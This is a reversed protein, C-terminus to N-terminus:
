QVHQTVLPDSVTALFSDQLRSSVDNLVHQANSQGVHWPSWTRRSEKRCTDVGGIRFGVSWGRTHLRGSADLAGGGESVFSKPLVVVVTRVLFSPLASKLVDAGAPTRSRLCCTGPSRPPRRFSEAPRSRGRDASTPSGGGGGGDGGGDFFVVPISEKQQDYVHERTIHPCDGQARGFSGSHHM